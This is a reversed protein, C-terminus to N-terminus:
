FMIRDKFFSVKLSLSGNRKLLTSIEAWLPSIFICPRYNTEQPLPTIKCLILLLCTARDQIIFGHKKRLERTGSLGQQVHICTPRPCSRSMSFQDAHGQFILCMYWFPFPLQFQFSPLRM